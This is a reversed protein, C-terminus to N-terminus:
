LRPPQSFTSRFSSSQPSLQRPRRDSGRSAFTPFQTLPRINRGTQLQRVTSFRNSDTGNTVIYLDTFIDLRCVAGAFVAGLVRGRPGATVAYTSRTIRRDAAVVKSDSANPRRSVIRAILLQWQWYNPQHVKQHSDLPLFDVPGALFRTVDRACLFLYLFDSIPPGRSLALCGTLGMLDM